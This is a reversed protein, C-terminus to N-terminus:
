KRRRRLARLVDLSRAGLFRLATYSHARLSQLAAFSSACLFQLAAFTRVCLSQFAHPSHRLLYQVATSAQGIRVIAELLTMMVTLFALFVLVLSMCQILFHETHEFFNRPTGLYDSVARLAVSMLLLPPFLLIHAFLEKFLIRYPEDFTLWNAAPTVSPLRGSAPPSSNDRPDFPSTDHSSM